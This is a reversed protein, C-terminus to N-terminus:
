RMSEMTYRKGDSQILIAGLEDTRFYEVKAEELRELLEAAPHGYRNNKGASIIAKDVSLYELFEKSTAYKSGHHGVKLIDIDSIGRQKMYSLCDEEGQEELDGTLLVSFDKYRLLLSLSGQNAEEYVANRIPHVCELLLRDQNGMSISDGRSFHYVKVGRSLATEELAKYREGKVHDAIAPLILTGVTFGNKPSEELIELMGNMHDEDDHSLIWYDIRSVATYKFFPSLVYEGLGSRSTSGGDIMISSHHYRIFIGDGQGVDLFTIQLKGTQIHISLLFIGAFICVTKLLIKLRRKAHESLREFRGRFEDRRCVDHMLDIIKGSNLEICVALAIFVYYLFNQVASPQGTHMSYGPLVQVVECIKKYFLLIASAPLALIKATFLGFGSSVAALVASATVAAIGSILLVTMAPIVIINLVLSYLPFSYYYHLYVPLTGLSVATARGIRTHMNPLLIGISLIAAFSFLFGSHFLYLPNFFLLVCLACAMATLLDYTRHLLRSTLRLLFMIAARCCSPSMGTMVAYLIIIVASFLASLFLSLDGCDPCDLHLRRLVAESLRFSQFLNLFFSILINLVRFIMMGLISMHLSSTALLHVIGAGRYLEKIQPDVMSGDGTLMAKLVSAEEYPFVNDLRKEIKRKIKYLINKISDATGVSETSIDLITISQMKFALNQIAYYERSNFEGPNSAESFERCKGRVSVAAGIPMSADMNAFNEATTDAEAVCLINMSKDSLYHAEDGVASIKPGSLVFRFSISGDERTKYEKSFVFGSATIIQGEEPFNAPTGSLPPMYFDSLLIALAFLLACFM